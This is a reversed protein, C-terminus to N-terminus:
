FRWLFQTMFLVGDANLLPSVYNTKRYDVEFGVQVTKSFDYTLVNFFTENIALQGPALDRAIPHDIGYGVHLAVKPHLHYYIEGWGGTARIPGHTQYNFNQLISGNYEGLSQGTFVEGKLGFRDTIAWQADAGLGWVDIVSRVPGPTEPSIQTTRIQGVVGSVGLELPRPKRGAMLEGEAGFGFELRGEINPWGNDEVLPDTLQDRVLTAIPESLGGQFTLQFDEAPRFFREFRLQGRYSGANGSGFLLSFPLVTPNVPNFIDQQLGGAFRMEANRLEGYAYYWLM